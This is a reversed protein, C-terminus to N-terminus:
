RNQENGNLHRANCSPLHWHPNIERFPPMHSISPLADERIQVLTQFVLPESDLMLASTDVSSLRIPTRHVVRM